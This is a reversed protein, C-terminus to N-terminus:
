NTDMRRSGRFQTARATMASTHQPYSEPPSTLLPKKPRACGKGSGHSCNTCALSPCIPSAPASMPLGHRQTSMPKSKQQRVALREEASLGNIQREIECLEDYRKVAELAIPSIPKGKRKHDRANKQIDALAFFKRRSHAHCFAFTIPV